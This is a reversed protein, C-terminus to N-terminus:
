DIDQVGAMDSILSTLTSEITADAIATPMDVNRIAAQGAIMAAAVPVWTGPNRMADVAWAHRKNVETQTLAGAAEGIVSPLTKYLAARVQGVFTPDTARALDNSFTNPM